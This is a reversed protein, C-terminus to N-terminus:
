LVWTRPVFQAVTRLLELTEDEFLSEMIVRKTTGCGVYIRERRGRRKAKQGSM